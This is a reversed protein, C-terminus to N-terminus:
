SAVTEREPRRRTVNDAGHPRRALRRGSKVLITGLVRAHVGQLEQASAELDAARSQGAEVTLVAAGALRGAAMKSARPARAPLALIVVTSDKRTVLRRRVAETVYDDAGSDLEGRGPQVVTLRPAVASGFVPTGADESVLRLQLSEALLSQYGPAAGMMVLEVDFGAQALVLALNPAV